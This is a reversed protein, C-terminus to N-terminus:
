VKKGCIQNLIFNEDFVKTNVNFLNNIFGAVFEDAFDKELVSVIHKMSIGRARWALYFICFQGCTSTFFKQICKKNYEFTSSNEMIYKNIEPPPKRGYSDFYEFKFNENVFLAVWHSGPQNHNDLNIVFAAPKPFEVPIRDAPFVGLTMKNLIDDCSMINLIESTIM